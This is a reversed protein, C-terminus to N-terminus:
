PRPAGIRPEAGRRLRGINSRHRWVIMAAILMTGVLPPSGHLMSEAVGRSVDARADPLNVLVLYALPLSAAGTMSAVSMYRTARLTIIWILLAAFAPLTLLPWMAVAAGLGTAVGKGGRLGLFIPALHGLVAAAAVALWLWMDGAALARPPQGLAAHWWGAGLVPVAGKLFDLGFCLLGLRRGLVRGVNTAGINRSGHERIDVGKMKGILVGFPVSGIVYAMVIWPLWSM